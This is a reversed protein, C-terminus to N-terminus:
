VSVEDDDKDEEDSSDIKLNDMDKFNLDSFNVEGEEIANLSEEDDDSDAKRKKAFAHLEKRATKKVFAALEKKSSSTSKDADRKWTKNKFAPKREGNNDRLAKAKKQLVLCDDTNHSDKGHLLCYKGGGSSNGKDKHSKSKNDSKTKGDKRVPEFDETAEMRECFHIVDSLSKEVPDFGQKDMERMWSRPIGNLIIDIIEDESLKQSDGNFPPLIPIEDDNIRTVHNTFVRITMDAPKRCFRRMWRKQKALAKHPAMYTIMDTLGSVLHEDDVAPQAVALLETKIAEQDTITGDAKIENM